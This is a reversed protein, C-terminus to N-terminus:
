NLFNDFKEKKRSLYVTADQYMLNYFNQVDQKKQYIVFSVSEKDFVKNQSIGIESGLWEQTQSVLKHTGYFGFRLHGHSMFVTGDGDFIGRIYHRFLEKPIKYCLEAVFTKNPCVGWQALDKAMKTSCVSFICEDRKDKIYRRVKNSSHLEQKFRELIDVDNYQLMIQIAYQETNRKVRHVNGDTLLLGLFYAKEESDITSFYDIDADSQTGRPRGVGANKVVSMITNETKVKDTFLPLIEKATLGSTYLKIIRSKEELTLQCKSYNAKLGQKRLFRGISSDSRNLRKGIEVTNYGQKHLNLIIEKEEDTLYNNYKSKM